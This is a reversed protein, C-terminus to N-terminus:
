RLRSGHASLVPQAPGAASAKQLVLGKLAALWEGGAKAQASRPSGLGGCELCAAQMTPGSAITKMDGIAALLQLRSAGAIKAYPDRSM